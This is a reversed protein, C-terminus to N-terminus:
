YIFESLIPEVNQDFFRLTEGEKVCLISDMESENTWDDTDSPTNSVKYSELREDICYKEGEFVFYNEIDVICWQKVANPYLRVIEQLKEFKM